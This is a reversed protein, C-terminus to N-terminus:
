GLYYIPVRLLTLYTCCCLWCSNPIDDIGRRSISLCFSVVTVIKAQSLFSINPNIIMSAKLSNSRILKM